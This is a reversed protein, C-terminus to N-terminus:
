WERNLDELDTKHLVRAAVYSCDSGHRLVQSELDAEQLRSECDPLLVVLLASNHCPKVCRVWHIAMICYSIFVLSASTGSNRPTMAVQMSSLIKSTM